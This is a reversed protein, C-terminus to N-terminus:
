IKDLDGKKARRGCGRKGDEGVGRKGRQLATSSAPHTCSAELMADTPLRAALAAMDRREKEREVEELNLRDVEVEEEVEEESEEEAGEVFKEVEDVGEVSSGGVGEGKTPTAGDASGACTLLLTSDCHQHTPM